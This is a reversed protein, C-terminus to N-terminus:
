SLRQFDNTIVVQNKNGTIVEIASVQLIGNDDIEFTVEILAEGRPAPPIGTLNFYQYLSLNNIIKIHLLIM